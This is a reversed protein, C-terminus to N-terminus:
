MEIFKEEPTPFEFEFFAKRAVFSAAVNFLKEARPLRMEKM